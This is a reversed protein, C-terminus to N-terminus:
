VHKEELQYVRRATAARVAASEDESLGALLDGLTAMRERYDSATTARSCWRERGAVERPFM